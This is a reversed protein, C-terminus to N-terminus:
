FSVGATRFHLVAVLEERFVDLDDAISSCLHVVILVNPSDTRVDLGGGLLGLLLEVVEAAEASVDGALVVLILGEVAEVLVDLLQLLVELLGVAQEIHSERGTDECHDRLM